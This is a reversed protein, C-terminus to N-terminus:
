GHLGMLERIEAAEIEMEHYHEINNKLQFEFRHLIKEILRLKDKQTDIHTQNVEQAEENKKMREQLKRYRKNLAALKREESNM